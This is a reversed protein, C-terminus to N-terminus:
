EDEQKQTPATESPFERTGSSGTSDILALVRNVRELERDWAFKLEPLARARIRHALERRLFGRAKVAASMTEEGHQPAHVELYVIARALDKSVEVRSVTAARLRPDGVGREFLDALERHVQAAMRSARSFERPM